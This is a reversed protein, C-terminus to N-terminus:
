FKGRIIQVTVVIMLADLPLFTLVLAIAYAVDQPTWEMRTWRRIQTM